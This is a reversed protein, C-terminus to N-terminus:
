PNHDNLAFARQFREDPTSNTPPNRDNKDTYCNKELNRWPTINEGAKYQTERSQLKVATQTEELSMQQMRAPLQIKEVFTSPGATSKCFM